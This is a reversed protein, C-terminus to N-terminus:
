LKELPLHGEERGNAVAGLLARETDELVMFLIEQKSDVHRYIAAESLGIEKALAEMTLHEMGQDTIIKRATEVIQQQRDEHAVRRRVGRKPHLRTTVAM